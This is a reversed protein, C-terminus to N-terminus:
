YKVETIRRLREMKAEVQRRREVALNKQMRLTKKDELVRYEM